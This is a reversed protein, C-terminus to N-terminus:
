TSKITRVLEKTSDNYFGRLETKMREIIDAAIQERNLEGPLKALSLPVTAFAKDMGLVIKKADGELDKHHDTLDQLKGKIKSNLWAMFAGVPPFFLGLVMLLLWLRPLALVSQWFGVKQPQDVDSTETTSVTKFAIQNGKSDTVPVLKETTIERQVTKNPRVGVGLVNSVPNPIFFLALGAIVFYLIAVEAFGRENKKM